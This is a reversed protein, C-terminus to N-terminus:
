AQSGWTNEEIVRGESPSLVPCLPAEVMQVGWAHFPGNPGRTALSSVRWRL